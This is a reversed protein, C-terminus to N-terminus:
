NSYIFEEESINLQIKENGIKLYLKNESPDILFVLAGWHPISDNINKTLNRSFYDFQDYFLFYENNKIYNLQSYKSNITFIADTAIQSYSYSKGSSGIVKIDDALDRKLNGSINKATLEVIFYKNLISDDADPDASNQSFARESYYVMDDIIKGNILDINMEQVSMLDLGLETLNSVPFYIGNTGIVKYDKLDSESSITILSLYNKKRLVFLIENLGSDEIPQTFFSEDGLFFLARSYNTSSATKLTKMSSESKQEIFKIGISDLNSKLDNFAIKTSDISDFEFLHSSAVFVSEDAVGGFFISSSNINTEFNILDVSLQPFADVSEVELLYSNLENVTFNLEEISPIYNQPNKQLNNKPIVNQNNVINLNTQNADLTSDLDNFSKNQSNSVCGLLLLSILIVIIIQSKM